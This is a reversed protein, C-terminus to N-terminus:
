EKYECLMFMSGKYLKGKRKVSTSAFAAVEKIISNIMHNLGLSVDEADGSVSLYGTYWSLTPSGRGGGGM